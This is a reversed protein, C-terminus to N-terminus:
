PNSLFDELGRLPSLSMAQPTLGLFPVPRFGDLRSAAVSEHGPAHAGPLPVNMCQSGQLPSLDQQSLRRDTAAERSRINQALGFGQPERGLSHTKRGKPAETPGCLFFGANGGPM